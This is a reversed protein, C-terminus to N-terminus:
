KAMKQIYARLDDVQLDSMREAPYLPMYPRHGVEPHTGHRVIEFLWWYNKDLQKAMYKFNAKSDDFVVDSVGMYTHCSQCSLEYVMKGKDPDGKPATEWDRNYPPEVFTAPSKLSYREKIRKIIDGHMEPNQKENNMEVVDAESFGLDSFTYGISYYYALIAEIEWNEVRRGQSCEMACLQIAERLNNNTPKVLDGYKKFYDDNYWTERNVIGYFTTGQLFPIKNESAYQLRAEPDSVSLVPDEMGTNHCNTCMYYLSIYKSKNGEPDTTRGHHVMEYGQKIMEPTYGSLNWVPVPEGVERLADFVKTEPTWILNNNTQFGNLIILAGIFLIGGLIVKTTSM